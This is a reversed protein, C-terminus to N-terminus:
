PQPAPRLEEELRRVRQEQRADEPSPALTGTALGAAPRFYFEETLASHDWPVQNGGTAAMVDRRVSMMLAGVGRGSAAIHVILAAAFPSNRGRGDRAVNGPQTSFAIFTGPGWEVAALGRQVASSRAGM